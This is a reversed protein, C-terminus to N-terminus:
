LYQLYIIEIVKRLVKGVHVVAEDGLLVGLHRAAGAHPAVPHPHGRRPVIDGPVSGPMIALRGDVPCLVEEVEGHEWVLHVGGRSPVSCFFM